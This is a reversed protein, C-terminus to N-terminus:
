PPIPLTTDISGRRVSFLGSGEPEQQLSSRNTATSHGQKGSIATRLAWENTVTVVAVVPSPGSQFVVNLWASQGLEWISGNESAWPIPHPIPLSPKGPSTIDLGLGSSSYTNAPCLSIHNPLLLTCELYFAWCTCLGLGSLARSMNSVEPLEPAQIFPELCTHTSNEFWPLIM